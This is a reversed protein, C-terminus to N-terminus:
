CSGRRAPKEKEKERTGSLSFDMRRSVKIRSKPSGSHPGRDHGFYKSSSLRGPSSPSRRIRSPSPTMAESFLRMGSAARVEEKKTAARKTIGRLIIECPDTQDFHKWENMINDQAEDLCITCIRQKTKWSGVFDRFSGCESCVVRGCSRCHHKKGILIFGGDLRKHCVECKSISSSSHWHSKTQQIARGGKRDAGGGQVSFAGPHSIGSGRYSGAVSRM